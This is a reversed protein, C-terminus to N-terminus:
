GNESWLNLTTEIDQYEKPVILNICMYQKKPLYRNVSDMRRLKRVVRGRATWCGRGIQTNLVRVMSYFHKIGSCNVHMTIMEDGM